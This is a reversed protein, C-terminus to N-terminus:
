KAGLVDDAAAVAGERHGLQGSGHQLQLELVEALRPDLRGPAPAVRHRSGVRGTGRVHRQPGAPGLDAPDPAIRGGLVLDEGAEVPEDRVERVQARRGGVAMPQGADPHEDSQRHEGEGAVGQGPELLVVADEHADAAAGDVVALGDLGRGDGDGRGLALGSAVPEVQRDGHGDVPLVHGEVLEQPGQGGLLLQEDERAAGVQAEVLGLQLVQAAQDLLGAAQLLVGAVPEADAPVVDVQPGLQLLEADDVRLCRGPPLCEGGSAVPPLM